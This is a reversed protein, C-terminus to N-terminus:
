VRRLPGGYTILRGVIPASVVVRVHMREDDPETWARCDVRPALWSPLRLRFPGVRARAGAPHYVVAGEEFAIRFLLEVPGKREVLRGDPLLWQTTEMTFDAFARRWLQHDPTTQIELRLAVDEGSPPMGAFVLAFRAPWSTARTVTFRGVAVLSPDADLCRRVPEPLTAWVEGFVRPYLALPVM